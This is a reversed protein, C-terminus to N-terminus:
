CKLLIELWNKPEFPDIRHRLHLDRRPEAAELEAEELDELVQNVFLVEDADM